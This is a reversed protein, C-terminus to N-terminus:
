ESKEPEVGFMEKFFTKFEEKNDPLEESIIKFIERIGAEEMGEFQPLMYAIIGDAFSAIEIKEEGIKGKIIFEIIDKIIAPGIGRKKNIELWIKFIKKKTSSKLRNGDFINILNEGNKGVDPIGVHIFAFRRMFAYSMQYLSTKDFTNMTAIIRWNRGIRYFCEDECGSVNKNVRGIKIPEGNSKYPLETTQGSLSTFLQGFAKDIDARNIEDIILIKNESISRLFQGEEFKLQGDDRPMLGGITDFTTWDSTATTLIYGNCFRNKAAEAVRQAITTKATGPPGILIIHKGANLASAIRRKILEANDLIIENSTETKGFNISDSDLNWEGIEVEKEHTPPTPRKKGTLEEFESVFYIFVDTEWLDKFDCKGKIENLVVHCKEYKAEISSKDIENEFGLIKFVDFLRRNILPLNNDYIHLLESCQGLGLFKIEDVVKKVRKSPPVDKNFLLYKLAQRSKNIDGYETLSKKRFGMVAWLKGYVKELNEASITDITNENLISEFFKKREAREKINSEREPWKKFEELYLSLKDFEKEDMKEAEEGYIEKIMKRVNEEDLIDNVRNLATQPGFDRTFNFSYENEIASRDFNIKKVGKLFWFYGYSSDDWLIRSMEPQLSEYEEDTGVFSVIGIYEFKEGIIFAQLDGGEMERVIERKVTSGWAFLSDKNKVIYGFLESDKMGGKELLELLRAIKESTVKNAITKTINDRYTESRGRQVYFQIKKDSDFKGVDEICEFGLKRFVREADHTTFVFGKPVQQLNRFVAKVPKKVGDIVIKHYPDYGRKGEWDKKDTRDFAEIVENEYILFERRGKKLSTFRM